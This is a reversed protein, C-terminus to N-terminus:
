VDSGPGPRDRFGRQSTDASPRVPRDEGVVDRGLGADVAYSEGEGIPELRAVPGPSVLIMIGDLQQSWACRTSRKDRRTAALPLLFHQGQPHFPEQFVPEDRDQFVGHQDQDQHQDPQDRGLRHESRASPSRPKGGVAGARRRPLSPSKSLTEKRTRGDVGQVEQYPYYRFSVFGMSINAIPDGGVGSFAKRETYSYQLGIQFNGIEGQYM